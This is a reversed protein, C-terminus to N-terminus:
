HTAFYAWWSGITIITLLTLAANRLCAACTPCLHDTPYIDVWCLTCHADTAWRPHRTM